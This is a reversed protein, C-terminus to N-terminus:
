AKKRHSDDAGARTGRRPRRGNSGFTRDARFDGRRHDRGSCISPQRRLADRDCRRVRAIVRQLQGLLDKDRTTGFILTRRAPPFCTRLTEALASASAANHAGDIVLWPNQGLVEVRAPFRLTAFGRVVDARSVALSPEAEALADLSALAVAVNHAQHPGLLPLVLTGWDSRWTRM